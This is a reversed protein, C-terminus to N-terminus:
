HIYEKKIPIEGSVVTSSLMRVIYALDQLTFNKTNMSSVADMVDGVLEAVMDDSLGYEPLDLIDVQSDTICLLVGYKNVITISTEQTDSM